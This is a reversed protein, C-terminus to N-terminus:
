FTREKDSVVPYLVSVSVCPLWSLSFSHSLSLFMKFEKVLIVSCQTERQKYYLM